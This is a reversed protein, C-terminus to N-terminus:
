ADGLANFCPADNISVIEDNAQLGAEVAEPEPHDIIMGHRTFPLRRSASRLEISLDPKVQPGVVVTLPLELHELMSRIKKASIYTVNEDGIYLLPMGAELGLDHAQGASHVNVIILGIHKSKGIHTIKHMGEFTYRPKLDMGFKRDSFIIQRETALLPRDAFVQSSILASLLRYREPVFLAGFRGGHHVRMRLTGGASLSVVLYVHFHSAVHATGVEGSHKLNSIADKCQQATAFDERKIAEKKQAQFDEIEDSKLKCKISGPVVDLAVSNMMPTM